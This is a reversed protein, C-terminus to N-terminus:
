ARVLMATVFGMLIHISVFILLLMIMLRYRTVEVKRDMTVIRFMPYLLAAYYLLTFAIIISQKMAGKGPNIGTIESLSTTILQALVSGQGITFFLAKIEAFKISPLFILITIAISCGLSVVLPLLPRKRRATKQKPIESPYRRRLYRGYLFIACEMSLLVAVILLGILLQQRIRDSPNDPIEVLITRIWLFTIAACIISFAILFNGLSRKMIM